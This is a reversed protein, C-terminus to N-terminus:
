MFRRKVLLSFCGSFTVAVGSFLLHEEIDILKPKKMNALLSPYATRTGVDLRLANYKENGIQHTFVDLVALTM